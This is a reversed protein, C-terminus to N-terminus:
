IRRSRTLLGLAALLTLHLISPEPIINHLTGVATIGAGGSGPAGYNNKWEQYDVLDVVNESVTENAITGYGALANRWRVYDGADVVGDDNYDGPLIVTLVATDSAALGCANLCVVDYRGADALTVNWLSLQFNTAGSLDVDDKRWQYIFPPTGTLEVFFAVDSGFNATQSRPQTVITPWECDQARACEACASTAVVIAVIAAIRSFMGVAM